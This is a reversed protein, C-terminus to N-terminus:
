QLVFSVPVLVTSTITQGNRRGPEFRWDAVAALAAQDLLPYGSSEAVQLEEVRGQRNVLVELIVTGQHHRRQAARPYPPPPNERYLPRAETIPGAATSQQKATAGAAEAASTLPAPAPSAAATEKAVPKAKDLPPEPPKKSDEPATKAEPEPAPKPEPVPEPEPTPAPPPQPVPIAEPEPPPEPRSPTAPEPAAPTEPPLAAPPGTSLALQLALQKGEPPPSARWSWDSGWWFLLAHGLLALFLAMLTRQM